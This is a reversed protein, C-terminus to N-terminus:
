APRRWVTTQCPAGGGPKLGRYDTREWSSLATSLPTYRERDSDDLLLLGGPKVKPMAALGCAVRARGDVIVLDLSEDTQDAITAVYGDFYRGPMSQSGIEGSLEAERLLLTVTETEALNDRLVEYWDRDNEVVTLRAGHDHLWLTSGGGGFEFVAPREPLAAKVGDAARYPWWPKRGAITTTKRDRVWRPVDVV